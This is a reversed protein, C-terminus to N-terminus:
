LTVTLASTTIINSQNGARDRCYISYTVTQSAVSDTLATSKIITNLNGKIHITAGDPALQPIRYAYTVGNRSDTVFLNTVNPDNQGLDGDFDDYSFTLTIANQYQVVSSPSISVFTIVPVNSQQVDKKCSPLFLCYTFFLLYCTYQKAYLLMFRSNYM